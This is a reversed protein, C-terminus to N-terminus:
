SGAECGELGGGGEGEGGCGGCLGGKFRLVRSQFGWFGVEWGVCVCFYIGPTYDAGFVGHYATNPALPIQVTLLTPILPMTRLPCSQLLPSMPSHQKLLILLLLPKHPRTSHPLRICSRCPAHLLRLLSDLITPPPLHHM